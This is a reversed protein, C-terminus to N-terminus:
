FQNFHFLLKFQLSYLLLKEIYAMQDKCRFHSILVVKIMCQFADLWIHTHGQNSNPRMVHIQGPPPPPPPPPNPFLLFHCPDLLQHNVKTIRNRYEYRQTLTYKGHNPTLLVWLVLNICLIHFPVCSLWSINASEQYALVMALATCSYSENTSTVYSYM